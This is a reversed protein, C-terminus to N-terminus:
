FLFGSRRLALLFYWYSRLGSLLPAWGQIHQRIIRSLSRAPLERQQLLALSDALTQLVDTQISFASQSLVSDPLRRQVDQRFGPPPLSVCSVSNNPLVRFLFGGATFANVWKLATPSATTRTINVADTDPVRKADAFSSSSFDDSRHTRLSGHERSPSRVDVGAPKQHVGAADEQRGRAKRGRGGGRWSPGDERAAECLRARGHHRSHPDRREWHHVQSPRRASSNSLLVLVTSTAAPIRGVWKLASFAFGKLGDKSRCPSVCCEGKHYTFIVVASIESLESRFFFTYLSATICFLLVQHLCILGSFCLLSAWANKNWWHLHDCKVKLNM